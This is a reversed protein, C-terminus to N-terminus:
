LQSAPAHPVFAFLSALAALRAEVPREGRAAVAGRPPRRRREAFLFGLADAAAVLALWFGAAFAAHVRFRAVAYHGVLRADIPNSILHLAASPELHTVAFRQWAWLDVVFGIPVSVVILAALKRLRGPRLGLLALAGAVALAIGYPALAREVSALT